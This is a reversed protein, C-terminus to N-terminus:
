GREVQAGVAVRGPQTVVADVGLVIEGLRRRYRALASLVGARREGTEPDLDVVACRPLQSRVELTAGGVRLSRGVWTDEVFPEEGPTEVTVTARLQADDVPGVDRAVRELTSTSVLSVSGAYVVDGPRTSRALLVDYGLFDSYAAAWPGAVVDLDVARGWYDLTLLEGTQVPVDAVTRGPLEASLVGDHWCAVARMLSPNEVTRLVRDRAPDVLCFVRDGAPGDTTLDLHERDTHRAGKLPTLGLRSVHM